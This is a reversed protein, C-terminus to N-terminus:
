HEDQGEQNCGGRPGGLGGAPVKAAQEDRRGDALVLTVTMDLVYCSCIDTM